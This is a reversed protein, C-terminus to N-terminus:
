DGSVKLIALFSISLQVITTVQQLNAVKFVGVCQRDLLEGLPVPVSLEGETLRYRYVQQLVPKFAVLFEIDSIITPLASTVSWPSSSHTSM